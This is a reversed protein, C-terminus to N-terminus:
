FGLSNPAPTRLTLHEVRNRPVITTRNSTGAAPELARLFELEVQCSDCISLSSDVARRFYMGRVLRTM